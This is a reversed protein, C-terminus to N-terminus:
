GGTVAKLRGQEAWEGLVEKPISTERHVFDLLNTADVLWRDPQGTYANILDAEAHEGVYRALRKADIDTMRVV